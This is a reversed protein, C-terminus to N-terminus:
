LRLKPYGGQPPPLKFDSLNSLDCYSLPTAKTEPDSAAHVAETILKYGQGTEVFQSKKTSRMLAIAQACPCTLTAPAEMNGYAVALPYHTSKRILNMMAPLVANSDEHCAQILPFLTESSITLTEFVVQQEAEVMHM